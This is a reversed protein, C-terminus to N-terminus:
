GFAGGMKGFSSFLGGIGGIITATAMRDAAAKRQDGVYRDLIAQNELNRGKAEGEWM